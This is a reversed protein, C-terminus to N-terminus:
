VCPVYCDSGMEYNVGGEYGCDSEPKSDESDSSQRSDQNPTASIENEPIVVPDGEAGRSVPCRSCSSCSKQISHNQSAHLFFSLPFSTHETELIMYKVGSYLMYIFQLRHESHGWSTHRNAYFNVPFQGFFQKKKWGQRNPWQVVKTTVLHKAGYFRSSPAISLALTYTLILSFDGAMLDYTGTYEVCRVQVDFLLWIVM